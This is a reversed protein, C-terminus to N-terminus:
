EAPVEEVTILHSVKRVMGRISPQDPREVTHHLRRLGLARVTREQDGSRGITSRVLTIRLKGGTATQQQDSM